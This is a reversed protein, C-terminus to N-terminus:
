EIFKWYNRRLYVIPFDTPLLVKIWKVCVQLLIFSFGKSPTNFEIVM